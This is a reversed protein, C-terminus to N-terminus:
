QKGEPERINEKLGIAVAEMREEILALRAAFDADSILGLRDADQADEFRRSIEALESALRKGEAIRAHNTEIQKRLVEARDILMYHSPPFVTIEEVLAFPEGPAPHIASWTGDENLRAIRFGQTGWENLREVLLAVTRAADCPFLMVCFTKAGVHFAWPGSEMGQSSLIGDLNRAVRTLHDWYERDSVDGRPLEVAFCAAGASAAQLRLIPNIASM